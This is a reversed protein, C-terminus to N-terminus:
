APTMLSLRLSVATKIPVARNAPAQPLPPPFESATAPDATFSASVPFACANSPEVRPDPRAKRSESRTTQNQAGHHVEQM